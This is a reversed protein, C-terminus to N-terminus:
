INELELNLEETGALVFRGDRLLDIEEGDGTVAYIRGIEDYPITIDTHCHFYAKAPDEKRLISIENDRAVIKKGDPNRTILDEDYSYCTDGVAFHPGTKEAILIPLKEEIGFKRAMAFAATNTGIAFEGIPLTEHRDLVNEYIYNKNGEEDEFNTCTYETILGDKFKIELNLFRNGSLYVEPVHLTGETGKLMPSTFVEGVPINVDAVCSEFLTEGAPDKLERLSVTMDTHNKGRGLVRVLKGRDLADVLKQQINRYMVYDLSNIRVTERFVGEYDKGLSPLPLAMITFSREEGPIYHNTLEGAEGQYWVKVENQEKTYVPTNKKLKPLFNEEGFVELWAPGAVLAAEKEYKKYANELEALRLAAFDKNLYYAQDNRHDFAFQRSFSMGYCGKPEAGFGQFSNLAERRIVPSLGLARFGEIVRRILREFGMMYNIQVTKKKSLDKGATEFGIRFGDVMAAAIKDIQERPMSNLFRATEEEQFGIPNGYRYLYSLGGDKSEEILRIFFAESPDVAGRVNEETLRACHDRYYAGIRDLAAQAPEKADYLSCVGLFLGCLEQFEEEKGEYAYAIASNLDTRLFCAAEGWGDSLERCAKEPNMWSEEYDSDTTGKWLSLLRSKLDEEPLLSLRGEKELKLVEGAELLFAATDKFFGERNRINELQAFMDKM